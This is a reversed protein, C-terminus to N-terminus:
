EIEEIESIFDGFCADSPMRWDGRPSLTVSGIKVGDPTCSRKFQQNFFRKIFTRLTSEIYDTEYTGAFATKAIRLIKEPSYGFRVFYYLFFDHLEYTGLIDETRQGLEEGHTGPILEPSVPTDLVDRLVSALRKDTCCEAYYSVLYRVLTKPVSCNVGYMSMHDGNYTSWGLAMESLDGTGIVIGGTKNAMDMLVQTRERAQANEYTVDYVDDPHDIDRLHIRVADAIDICVFRTNLYECLKEANGRTRKGTGFCPMTVTVIDDHSKGLKDMASATVLLALTSDLGGSIGIVATRCGAHRLRKALASSQMDLIFRCRDALSKEDEPVFPRKSFSRTLDTDCMDGDFYIYKYSSNSSVKFDTIRRREHVLRKVDLETYIVYKKEFPMREALFTGNECIVSHGSYILDTTSEGEGSNSYVYGCINRASHIGVLERRYEPKGISEPSASLNVIVTAGAMCHSVSPPLQGWVDECIEAGIILDKIGKHCFLQNTGFFVTFGAFSICICAASRDAPEFHRVEYFESYNPLYSKPVLGLLKGNQLAAACNYLKGCVQVPLGVFVLPLTDESAKIIKILSSEAAELLRDQSFLDSCCYGTICLEPFVIVSSGQKQAKKMLSIIQETNFTCDAVALEPTAAAVKIFGDKM